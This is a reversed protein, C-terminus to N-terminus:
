TCFVPCSTQRNGGASSCPFSSPHGLCWWMSRAGHRGGAKRRRASGPALDQWARVRLVPFSNIDPCLLPWLYKMAECVKLIFDPPTGPRVTPRLVGDHHSHILTEDLDLVLIKKKVQALGCHSPIVGIVEAWLQLRSWRQTGKGDLM